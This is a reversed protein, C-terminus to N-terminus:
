SVYLKVNLTVFDLSKGQLLDLFIAITSNWIQRNKILFNLQTYQNTKKQTVINEDTMLPQM